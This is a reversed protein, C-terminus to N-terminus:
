KKTEWPLNMTPQRAPMAGENNAQQDIARAIVLQEILRAGEARLHLCKDWLRNEEQKAEQNCLNVNQLQQILDDINPRRCGRCYSM